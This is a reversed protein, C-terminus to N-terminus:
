GNKKVKECADCFERFVRAQEDKIYDKIDHLEDDNEEDYDYEKEAKKEVEKNAELFWSVLDDVSLYDFEDGTLSFARTSIKKEFLESASIM